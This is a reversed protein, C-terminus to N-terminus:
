NIGVGPAFMQTRNHGGHGAEYGDRFAIPVAEAVAYERGLGFGEPHLREGDAGVVLDGGHRRVEGTVDQNERRPSGALDQVPGVVSDHM